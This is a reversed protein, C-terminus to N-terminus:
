LSTGFSSNIDGLSTFSTYYLLDTDANMLGNPYGCLSLLNGAHQDGVGVQWLFSCLIIIYTNVTFVQVFLGASPRNIEIDPALRLLYGARPCGAKVTLTGKSKDSIRLMASINVAQQLDRVRLVSGWNALLLHEKSIVATSPSLM